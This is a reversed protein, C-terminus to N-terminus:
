VTNVCNCTRVHEVQDEEFVFHLIEKVEEKKASRYDQDSPLVSTLEYGCCM